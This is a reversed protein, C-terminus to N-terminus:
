HKKDKPTTPWLEFLCECWYKPMDEFFNLHINFYGNGTHHAETITGELDMNMAPIYMLIKKGILPNLNLHFRLSRPILDKYYLNLNFGHTTVKSIFAKKAILNNEEELLSICSAKFTLKKDATVREKHM